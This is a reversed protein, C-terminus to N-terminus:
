GGHNATMGPARKAAEPCCFLNKRTELLHQFALIWTGRPWGPSSVEPFYGNNDNTYKQFIAGWQRLNSLCVM